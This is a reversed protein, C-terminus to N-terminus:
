NFLLGEILAIKMVGSVAIFEIIFEIMTGPVTEEDTVIM